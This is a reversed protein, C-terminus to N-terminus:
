GRENQHKEAKVKKADAKTTSGQGRAMQQLTRSDAVHGTVPNVPYVAKNLWRRKRPLHGNHRGM